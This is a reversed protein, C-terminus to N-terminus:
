CPKWGQKKLQKIFTAGFVQKNKVQSSKIASNVIMQECAYLVITGLPTHWCSKFWIPAFIHNKSNKMIKQNKWAM